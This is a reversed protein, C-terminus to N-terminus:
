EEIYVNVPSGNDVWQLWCLGNWFYVNTKMGQSVLFDEKNPEPGVSGNSIWTNRAAFFADNDIDFMEFDELVTQGIIPDAPLNAM